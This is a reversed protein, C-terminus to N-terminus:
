LLHTKPSRHFGQLVCPSRLGLLWKAADGDDKIIVALALKEGVREYRRTIQM